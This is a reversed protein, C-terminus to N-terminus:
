FLNASTIIFLMLKSVYSHLVNTHCDINANHLHVCLLQKIYNCSHSTIDRYYHIDKTDHSTDHKLLTKLLATVM